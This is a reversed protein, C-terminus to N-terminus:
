GEMREFAKTARYRIERTIGSGSVGCAKVWGRQEWSRLMGRSVEGGGGLVVAREGSPGREQIAFRTATGKGGGVGMLTHRLAEAARDTREERRRLRTNEDGQTTSM